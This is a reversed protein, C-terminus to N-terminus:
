ESRLSQIPDLKSAQWAPYFGFFIGIFASFILSIVISEVSILTAWGAIRSILASIGIGLFVGIIGGLISLLAAEIIFQLLIDKQRAGLALRIGIERVRETVSVLMINMIGIGGVLLSISAITALLTTLVRNAEDSSRQWDEQARITFDDEMDDRLHHRQRLLTTIEEKAKDSDQRSTASVHISPINTRRYIRQMATTYPMIIVDDTNGGFGSQGKAELIGIVRFPIKNIRIMEDLAPSNGFLEEKVISGIVAVKANSEVENKQYFRGEAIKWNRIIDFNENGGFVATNWNNNRYIVQTRTRLGPSAYDVYKCHEEIAKADEVTLTNATGFGGMVNGRSIQSPSIMLLNTGRSDISEQSEKQAGKGISVMAIVAAVGIIVGLMTLITRSKNRLLAKLATKLASSFNL